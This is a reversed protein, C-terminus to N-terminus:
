ASAGTATRSHALSRAPWDVRRALYVFGPSVLRERLERRPKSLHTALTGSLEDFNLIFAPRYGVAYALPLTVALPRGNCDRIEGRAPKQFKTLLSQARAMASWQAHQFLQIQTLRAAFVAIIALLVAALARERSRLRHPGNM